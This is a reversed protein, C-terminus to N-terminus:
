RSLSLPHIPPPHPPALPNRQRASRPIPVGEPAPCHERGRRHDVRHAVRAHGQRRGSPAPHARDDPDPNRSLRPLHRGHVSSDAAALSRCPDRRVKHSKIHARWLLGLRETADLMRECNVQLKALDLVVSPTPVESLTKGVFRARLQEKLAADANTTTAMNSPLIQSPSNLKSSLYTTTLGLNEGSATRHQPSKILERGVRICSSISGSGNERWYDCYYCTTALTVLLRFGTSNLRTRLIVSHEYKRLDSDSKKRAVLVPSKSKWNTHGGSARGTASYFALQLEACMRRKWSRESCSPTELAATRSAFLSCVDSFFTGMAHRQM